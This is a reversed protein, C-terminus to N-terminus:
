SSKLKSNEAIKELFHLAKGFGVFILFNVLGASLWILGVFGFGDVSLTIFQILGGLLSFTALAFFMIPWLSYQQSRTFPQVDSKLSARLKEAEIRELKRKDNEEIRDIKNRLAQM